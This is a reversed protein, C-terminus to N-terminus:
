PTVPLEEGTLAFYLNQLQHVYKFNVDIANHGLYLNWLGERMGNKTITANTIVKLDQTTGNEFGFKVLWDETLPIAECNELETYFGVDHWDYVICGESDNWNFGFCKSVKKTKKDFFLNGIRLENAAIM